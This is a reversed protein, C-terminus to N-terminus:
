FFLVSGFFVVRGHKQFFCVRGVDDGDDCSELQCPVQMLHIPTERFLVSSTELHIAEHEIGMFISRFEFFHCFKKQLSEAFGKRCFFTQLSEPQSRCWLPHDWTIRAEGELGSHTAIVQFCKVHKCQLFQRFDVRSTAISMMSFVHFMHEDFSTLIGVIHLSSFWLLLTCLLLLFLFLQFFSSVPECFIQFTVFCQTKWHNAPRSPQFTPESFRHTRLWTALPSIFIAVCYVMRPGSKSTWFIAGGQPAFCM